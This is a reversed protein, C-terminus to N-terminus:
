SRKQNQIQTKESAGGVSYPPEPPRNELLEPRVPGDSNNDPKFRLLVYECENKEFLVGLKREKM